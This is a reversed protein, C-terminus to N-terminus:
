ATKSIPNDRVFKDLVVNVFGTESKDFFGSTIKLYESIIIPRDTKQDIYLEALGTYLICLVLQNSRELDKEAYKKITVDLAEKEDQVFKFLKQVFSKKVKNRSGDENLDSELTEIANEITADMNQKEDVVLSYLAQICAIRANFKSSSKTINTINEEM